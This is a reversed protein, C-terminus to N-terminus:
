HRSQTLRLILCRYLRSVTKSSVQVLAGTMSAVERLAEEPFIAGVEATAYATELSPIWPELDFLDSKCDQLLAEVDDAAYEATNKDATIRVVNDQEYVELRARRERGIRDM